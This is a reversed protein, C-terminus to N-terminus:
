RLISNKAIGMKAAIYDDTLKPKKEQPITEFLALLTQYRIHKRALKIQMEETTKKNMEIEKRSGLPPDM